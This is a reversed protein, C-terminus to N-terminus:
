VLKKDLALKVLEAVNRTNCKSMINKRHTDVTNISIFLENGSDISKKGAIILKLVEIERKTLEFLNRRPLTQNDSKNFPTTTANVFSDIVKEQVNVDLFTGGNHVTEIATVLQTKGINKLVYGKAGKKLSERILEIEDYGTLMIVKLQPFQLKLKELTEIGDMESMNFDLLVIDPDLSKVDNIAQKGSNSGGIIQINQTSNLLSSIGDIIIQQDDVILVSIKTAM